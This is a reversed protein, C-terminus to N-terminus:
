SIRGVLATLKHDWVKWIRFVSSKAPVFLCQGILCLIASVAKLSFLPHSSNTNNCSIPKRFLLSLFGIIKNSLASNSLSEVLECKSSLTM